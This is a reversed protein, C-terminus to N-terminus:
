FKGSRGSGGGGSHSISGSSGSSSKKEIKVRRETTHTYRDYQNTLNLGASTIYENAEVKQYVTKMKRKLVLCVIGSILCSVGVVIAISSLNSQRVPNGDEANILYEDCKDLYHSIGSYWDNEGFDGLFAEELMLQGYENFAYEAYEGYVFMAYDRENMSLLVIIGDRGDGIGLQNNHYFEYTANYVHENGYETYDDVLVFYIGCNHLQSLAKARYELEEWEDFSLIDSIDFVYQMEVSNQESVEGDEVAINEGSTNPPCNTLIYESSSEAMAEVAQTLAIASMTMDEGNWAREAMWPEVTSRVAEAFEQSNGREESLNAYISWGNETPMAYVYEDQQEMQITLTIGEKNKGYGYGYKSYLLAAIEDIDDDSTEALVDVRLDIGLSASLQPLEEESQYTLTPSGLSNTEDYIVGRPQIAMAPFCSFLALIVALTLISYIKKM